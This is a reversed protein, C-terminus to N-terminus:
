LLSAMVVFLTAVFVNAATIGAASRATSTSSGSSTTSGSTGTTRTTNSTPSAVAGRCVFSTSRVLSQAIPCTFPSATTQINVGGNVRTLAPLEVTAFSGSLDVAQVTALAPYNIDKLMSNSAVVFGSVTELMPMSINMLQTNNTIFLDATIRTLNNAQILGLTTQQIGMSGTVNALANISLNGIQQVTFNGCNTLVPLSVSAAAANASILLSTDVSALGNLAINSLDGNNSIVITDARQLNIGSLSSLQTDIIQISMARTVGGFGLSQLVPLTTFSIGGVQTLSPFSMSNLQTLQTLTFTGSISQLTPGSLSTIAALASGQGTGNNIITLDGDITTIGGLNVVPINQSIM